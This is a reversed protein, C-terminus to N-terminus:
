NISSREEGKYWIDPVELIYRDMAERFRIRYQKPTVITPDKKLTKGGIMLNNGKVWNEVRKDWTFTRLWDIIGVYIKKTQDNIGIVLSYDMVDMASLFSTDNSLSGKLLKKSQEKVFIPSEYIYDIMNEDLLVENEKGTQQVHRNRMSGKLDFIRTTQHNYFLNEMILFDMKFIKQNIGNKISRIEIQYFGFIKAIATTLTNFVSQSIYKFYFPAISVFSELESKSLEKVIYRNDLTKLFNSGSKGGNSQWKICRSLSQIFNEDVGCSKRLAEFQESYFIKCSLNMNGGVNFQYKLHNTKNKIMIRELINTKSSGNSSKKYKKELKLFNMKKKIDNINIDDEDGEGDGEEEAQDMVAQIKTKYDNSSLCFAVLSSPEDERVIILSDAFTHEHSDLPYELPDWLTASRDAWFNTLSKLISVKEPQPIEIKPTTTNTTNTSTNKTSGLTTAPTTTPPVSSIDKDVVDEIKNYIEVIPKSEVINRAKFKNSMKELEQERQKKFEMSIQDLNLNNFYNALHSVKNPPGNVLANLSVDSEKRSLSSRRFNTPPNTSTSSTGPVNSPTANGSNTSNTSTKRQLDLLEEFKNVKDWINNNDRGHRLQNNISNEDPKVLLQQQQSKPQSDSQPQDNSKTGEEGEKLKVKEDDGGDENDQDKEKEKSKESEKNNYDHSYKDLLNRLHFQTMKTIENETPLFKHEFDNFETDWSVGLQQLERLIINLGLHSTPSSSNYIHLTKEKINSIQDELKIKFDEIVKIGDEGKDFIDIKVRNLRKSVSEFFKDTRTKIFNYSEIKLKIDVDAIFELQKKPPIVEFTDIKSYEIRIVLDNFGFCRVHNIYFDHNCNPNTPIVNEGYFSLELFKGISYYYTNDNMAVIPTTYKCEKCYSWMVRQNKGQFDQQNTIGEFKELIFDLKAGGHVFTKYHDLHSEGCEDCETISEHFIQDIFSGLCSDKDAYYPIAVIDPGACPTAHKISVTSRLVDIGKSPELLAPFYRMYNTWIRAKSHYESILSKLISESAFRLNSLLDQERNPLLDLSFNVKLDDLWLPDIHDINDTTQILQNKKFFKHFKYYSEIINSLPTPLSFSSAPSLSLKRHNFLAFSNQVDIIELGFECANNEQEKDIETDNAIEDLISKFELIKHNTTIGSFSSMEDDMLSKEFKANLYGPLLTEFVYKISTLLTDDGGRLQITFGSQMDTGTFFIFSKVKNEFMFKKVEFKQCSGLTGKKFSLDNVTQFVEAKTYRSLREIVQPKCNSIVTIGAEALLSEALGCVSDGVVIVDPELSILRSVLNTIYVNQQSHIIRLSIFQQKSKLYELPFTLLAIKPNNITSPMKKSDINKTMFLGDMFKTDSIRGGLIKKIKVYQKIDLTDTLKLYNVYDLVNKIVHKWKDQNEVIGRTEMTQAIIADFLDLFVEEKSPLHHYMHDFTSDNAGEIISDDIPSSDIKSMIENDSNNISMSIDVVGSDRISNESELNASMPSSTDGRDRALGKTLNSQNSFPSNLKEPIPSAPAFLVGPARGQNMSEISPLRMSTNGIHLHRPPKSKRRSRSKMRMMSAQARNLNNSLQLTSAPPAKPLTFKNGFAFDPFESLTPVVISSNPISKNSKEENLSIYASMAGEDESANASNDDDDDSESDKLDDDDHDFKVDSGGVRYDLTDGVSVTSKGSPKRHLGHESTKLRLKPQSPKRGLISNYMTNFSDISNVRPLDPNSINSSRLHSLWNRHLPTNFSGNNMMMTDLAYNSGRYVSNKFNSNYFSKSVPIEVSEGARTTPIAMQPAQKPHVKISEDPYGLEIRSPSTNSIPSEIISSRDRNLFGRNATLVADNTMSDRRSNVSLSRIRSLPHNAIISEEGSVKSVASDSESEEIEAESESSSSSDDSLYVIVDELCPKCVRLRDNYTKKTIKNRSANKREDKHQNYSVFSTCDSCFIQGCFRCHHKRRFATFPKFCNLCDSVFSDNMWYKKAIGGNKLPNESSRHPKIKKKKESVISSASSVVPLNNNILTKANDFLVTSLTSSTKKRLTKHDKKKLEYFSSLTPSNKLEESYANNNYNRYQEAKIPSSKAVSESYLSVDYYNPLINNSGNRHIDTATPGDSRDNVLRGSGNSPSTSFSDNNITEIDSASDDSLEIDNPLNTFISTSQLVKELPISLISAVPPAIPAPPPPLPAQSSRRGRKDITESKSIETKSLDRDSGAIVNVNIVSSTASSNPM